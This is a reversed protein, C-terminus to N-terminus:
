VPTLSFQKRREMIAVDFHQMLDARGWLATQCGHVFCPKIGFVVSSIEPVFAKSSKTAQRLIVIGGVQTGQVSIMDASSYGMLPAYDAPLVTNDAGSDVIGPILGSRGEIGTVHLTLYPRAGGLGLQRYAFVIPDAM